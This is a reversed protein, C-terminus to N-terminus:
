SDDPSGQVLKVDALDSGTQGMLAVVVNSRCTLSSPRRRILDVAVVAVKSLMAASRM